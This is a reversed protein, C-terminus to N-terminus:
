TQVLPWKIADGCDDHEQVWAQIKDVNWGSMWKYLVDDNKPKPYGLKIKRGFGCIGHYFRYQLCGMDAECAQRCNDFSLYATKELPSLGNTKARSLQKYSLLNSSTNLYYVDDSLNDWDLRTPVLHPAVFQHYVDRIRMPFTFNRKREFAYLNSLEESGIHHM